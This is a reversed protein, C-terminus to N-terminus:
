TLAWVQNQNAQPLLVAMAQPKIKGKGYSELDTSALAATVKPLSRIQLTVVLPFTFGM